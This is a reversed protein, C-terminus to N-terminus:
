LLGPHKPPQRHRRARASNGERSSKRRHHWECIAQLNARTHNDGAEIHDVETARDRCRSGDRVLIECRHGAETLVAARLIPWDPPLRSARDSGAWGGPM